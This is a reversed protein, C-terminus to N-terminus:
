SFLRSLWNSREQVDYSFAVLMFSFPDKIVSVQIPFLLLEISVTEVTEAANKRRPVDTSVSNTRQKVTDVM